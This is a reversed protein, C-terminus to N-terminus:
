FEDIQTIDTSSSIQVPVVPNIVAPDTETDNSLVVRLDKVPLYVSNSTKFDQYIANESVDHVLASEFGIWTESTVTDPVIKM